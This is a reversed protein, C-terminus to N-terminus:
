KLYNEVKNISLKTLPYIFIEYLTEFITGGIICSLIATIPWVGFFSGFAFIANDLLQGVITSSIARFFLNSKDKLKVMIKSNILSGVIYALFSFFTIRLTTAFITAFAIQNTYVKSAPIIISIQLLISMVFNMAFSLIIMRKTQNYGFIESSIDNIIFILPSILIGTTVTFIGVDISKLALINQILLSACYIGFLVESVLKIKNEKKM